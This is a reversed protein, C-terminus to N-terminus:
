NGLTAMSFRSAHFHDEENKTSWGLHPICPAGPLAGCFPCKVTEAKNRSDM